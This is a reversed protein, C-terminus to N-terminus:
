ESDTLEIEKKDWNEVVTLDLDFYDRLSEVIEVIQDMSFVGDKELSAKYLLLLQCNTDHMRYEKFKRRSIMGFYVFIIISTVTLLLSVFFNIQDVLPKDWFSKNSESKDVIDKIDRIQQGLMVYFSAFLIQFFLKPVIFVVFKIDTLPLIYTPTCAPVALINSMVSVKWPDKKCESVFLRYIMSSAMKSQFRQKLFLRMPFFILITMMISSFYIILFCKIVNKMFYSMMICFYVLGPFPMTNLIMVIAGFISISFIDNNTAQDKIQDVMLSVFNAFIFNYLLLIVFVILIFIGIRILVSSLTRKNSEKVKKIYKEKFEKFLPVHTQQLGIDITHSVTPHKNEHFNEILPPELDSEDKPQKTDEKFNQNM